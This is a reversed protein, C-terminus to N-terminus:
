GLFVFLVLVLIAAAGAFIIWPVGSGARAEPAEASSGGSVSGAPANIVFSLPAEQNIKFCVEESPCYNYTVQVTLAYEGSAPDQVSVPLTIDRSEGAKLTELSVTEATTGPPLGKLNIELDKADYPSTNRLNLKLPVEGTFTASFALRFPVQLSLIAQPSATAEGGQGDQGEEGKASGLGLLEEIKDKVEEEALGLWKGRIVGEQDILYLTPIAQVRFLVALKSDYGKGDWYQPWPLEFHEIFALAQERSLDLNIGIIELGKDHYEEYLAKMKPTAVVCPLCWSAWFDLLVVKGRYASLSVEEGQLSKFSFDPAKAGVYLPVKPPVYETPVVRLVSGDPSVEALAYSRDGVTFAENLAFVEHEGAEGRLVGDGDVDVVYFDAEDNYNGNVDADVLVIDYSNGDLKLEGKMATQGILFLFGRGAPWVISLEYPREHVTFKLHWMWEEPSLPTGRHGETDSFVEDGDFDVALYPTNDTLVAFMLPYEKEGLTLMGFLAMAPEPGERKLPRELSPYLRFAVKGAAWTGLEYAPVPSLSVTIEEASGYLFFAGLLILAPLVRTM